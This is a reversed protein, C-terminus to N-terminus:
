MRLATMPDVRAAKRAPLYCAALAVAFLVMSAGAFIAPDIPSVEFLLSKMARMLWASAILGTAVAAGALLGVEGLVTVLIDRPRAGVAMRIAIEGARQSTSYSMVGYVGVASLFIALLVFLGLLDASLRPQATSERIASDMTRVDSVPQERDVALVENRISASLSAPAVDTRVVLFMLSSPFQLYSLYIEPGERGNLGNEKIDGAVGVVTLWRQMPDAEADWPAPSRGFRPRIHEGIPNENPWFRRAATQNVVVAGPSNPGDSGALDRGEDFPVGLARLYGPTAIRYDAALPPEGPRPPERGQVELGTGVSMGLFPRLNVAAATRVGPLVDLRRVVERYFSTISSRDPYKTKPLWVQMTLLHDQRFGPSISELRWLSKVLLAAGVLLVISFALESIMLLRGARASRPSSASVRLAEGSTAQFAPPMGFVIGTVLAIALTFGLVSGDIVPAMARYTPIRPLLPTVAHLCWRAIALALGGGAIALVLSETLMQRVLRRRSAGIAARIAIERRRLVARALLLNAVNACAILLVLAVAGFLILLASRLSRANSSFYQSPYIPLIRTGWGTNTDPHTRELGGSISDMESQAQAMSVGPALRGLVMVSHDDRAHFDDDVTLPMWLELDPQLFCFDAPLIGVVTFPRGDIRIRAGLITPSGGFRRKWLSSALIVVRDRGPTEEDAQFARGLALDVGLMSFFAPSIRM